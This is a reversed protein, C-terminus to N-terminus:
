RKMFGKPDVLKFTQGYRKSVDVLQTLRGGKGKLLATLDATTNADTLFAFNAGEKQAPFRGTHWTGKWMMIGTSGDQYLAKMDEPRPIAEPDDPDTPRAFVTVAAHNSLPVFSQTVLYHREMHTFELTPKYQFKAFELEFKGECEFDVTWTKANPSDFHPRENREAIVQGFPAFSEATLLEIPLEFIKAM